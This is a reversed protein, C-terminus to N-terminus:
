KIPYIKLEFSKKLYFGKKDKLSLGSTSITPAFM